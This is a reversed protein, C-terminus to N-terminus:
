TPWIKKEFKLAFQNTTILKACSPTSHVIFRMKNLKDKNFM